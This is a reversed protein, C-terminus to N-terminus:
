GGAFRVVLAYVAADAGAHAVWPATMGGSARRLWGLALGYLSALAVGWWGNPFGARYHLLGFLVAQLGLATAPNGLTRDLADLIAGRFVAEEMAANALAFGGGAPVLLGPALAPLSQAYLRLDPGAARVWAALGIAAAAVL